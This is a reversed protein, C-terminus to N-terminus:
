QKGCTEIGSASRRLGGGRHRRWISPMRRRRACMDGIASAAKASQLNNCLCVSRDSGIIAVIKQQRVGRWASASFSARRRGRRACLSQPAGARRWSGGSAQKSINRWQHRWAAAAAAAAAAAM